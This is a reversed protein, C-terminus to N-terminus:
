VDCLVINEVFNLSEENEEFITKEGINLLKRYFYGRCVTGGGNM